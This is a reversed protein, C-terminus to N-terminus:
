LDKLGKGLQKLRFQTMKGEVMLEIYCKLGWTVWM